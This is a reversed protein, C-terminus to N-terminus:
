ACDFVNPHALRPHVGQAGPFIPALRRGENRLM